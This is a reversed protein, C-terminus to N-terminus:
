PTRGKERGDAHHHAQSLCGGSTGTVRRHRQERTATPALRSRTRQELHSRLTHYSIGLRECARRKNGDCRELVLRVYRSSWARLTDHEGLPEAFAEGYGGTINPPLDGVRILSGGLLALARELVRELQRVNGPWHYTSLADLAAGSVKPGAHGAARPGMRQGLRELLHEVLAPIDERRDRLPPVVLDIGSLRYFLDERFRGAAVQEALRRNTAAVVRTDIRRHGAAGVREVRLDQLVRLLKAQASASLDAVEDLFLTGGDALEFKGPRAGVGTATREEIGFLEAELLSEVLAACNVAVFPGRRRRSGQHISRAVLEKGTGSEGEVLVAFDTAAVRTVRHRLRQMVDSDGVLMTSGGVTSDELNIGDAQGTRERREQFSLLHRSRNPTDAVRRWGAM